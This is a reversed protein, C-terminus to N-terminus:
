RKDVLVGAAILGLFDLDFLARGKDQWAGSEVYSQQKDWLAAEQEQTPTFLFYDWKEDNEEDAKFYQVQPHAKLLARLQKWSIIKRQESLRADFDITNTEYVAELGTVLTCRYVQPLPKGRRNFVLKHPTTFRVILDRSYANEVLETYM